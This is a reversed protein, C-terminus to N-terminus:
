HFRTATAPARRDASCLHVNVCEPEMDFFPFREAPDQSKHRRAAPRWPDPTVM